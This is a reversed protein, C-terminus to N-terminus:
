TWNANVDTIYGWCEFLWWFCALAMVLLLVGMIFFGARMVIPMNFRHSKVVLFISIVLNTGGVLMICKEVVSDMNFGGIIVVKM